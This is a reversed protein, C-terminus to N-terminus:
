QEKSVNIMVQSGEGETTITISAKQSDKAFELTTYGEMSTPEGTAKWDAAVMEKQYFAAV